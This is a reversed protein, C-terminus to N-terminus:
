FQTAVIYLYHLSSVDCCLDITSQFTEVEASYVDKIDTVIHLEINKDTLLFASITKIVDDGHAIKPTISLLKSKVSFGGLKGM